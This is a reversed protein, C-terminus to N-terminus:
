ASPRVGGPEGKASLPSIQDFAAGLAAMDLDPIVPALSDEGVLWADLRAEDELALALGQNLDYLGWALGRQRMASQLANQILGRLVLHPESIAVEADEGRAAAQCQTVEFAAHGRCALTRVPHMICQGAIMLPCPWALALRDKEDMGETAAYAKAVRGSLGLLKGKPSAEVRRVYAALLFIEPATATVRLSCCTPCGKDCAIRPQGASQMEINREFWDFAQGILAEIMAGGDTSGGLVRGFGSEMAQFFDIPRETMRM